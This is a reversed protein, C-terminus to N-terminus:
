GYFHWPPPPTPTVGQTEHSHFRFLYPFFFFFAGGLKAEREWSGTGREGACLYTCKALLVTSFASICTNNFSLPPWFIHHCLPFCSQLRMRLIAFLSQESRRTQGDVHSLEAGVPRINMFNQIQTFKSFSGLFNLKKAIPCSYGTSWM